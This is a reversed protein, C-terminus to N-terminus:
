IVIQSSRSRLVSGRTFHKSRTPLLEDSDSESQTRNLGSRGRDRRGTRREPAKRVPVNRRGKRRRCLMCLILLAVFIVGGAATIQCRASSCRIAVHQLQPLELSLKPAVYGSSIPRAEQKKRLNPGHYKEKNAHKQKGKEMFPAVVGNYDCSSEVWGIRFNEVDFFIDHLMMINAGLVSGDPEEFYVGMVYKKKDEQYEMYHSPPVALLIDHPNVPDLDSALPLAKDTAIDKNSTDGQLQLIITPLSNLEEPTLAVADNSFPKGLSEQWAKRFPESLSFLLLTSMFSFLFSLM